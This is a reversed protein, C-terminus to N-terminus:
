STNYFGGALLPEDVQQVSGSVCMNLAEENISIGKSRRSWWRRSLQTLGGCTKCYVVLRYGTLVVQMRCISSREVNNGADSMDYRVQQLM